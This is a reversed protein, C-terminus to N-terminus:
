EITRACPVILPRISAPTHQERHTHHYQLTCSNICMYQLIPRTTAAQTHAHILLHLHPYRHTHTHALQQVSDHVAFLIVHIHVKQLNNCICLCLVCFDNVAVTCGYVPGIQNPETQCTSTVCM